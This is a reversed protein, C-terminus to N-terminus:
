GAPLAQPQGRRVQLDLLVTAYGPPVHVRVPPDTSLSAPVSLDLLVAGTAADLFRGSMPVPLRLRVHSAPGTSEMYAIFREQSQLGFVRSLGDSARLMSGETPGNVVRLRSFVPAPSLAAVAPPKGARIRYLRTPGDTVELVLDRRRELTELSQRLRSSESYDDTHVVVYGVGLDQLWAVTLVSPFIGAAAAIDDYGVPAFGGFGNLLPRWHVTSALLYRANRHFEHRRFIPLEVVAGPWSSAALYRHVRGAHNFRSYSGVGHFSEGTAALLLVVLFVSRWRGPAPRALGSFGIGALVALAFVVLIGFRNIARLGQLPPVLHYAWTYAPTLSGLSMLCGIGAIAILMRRTMPPAASRRRVLAFGALALTIVGPFLTGPASRYYGGSWSERHLSAASSLYSSLATTVETAEAVPPRQYPAQMHPRLLVLLVVLTVTAAAALRLLLRTGDSARFERARVLVAAGLAFCVFVVLYGSTLAAGLVCLGLARRTM